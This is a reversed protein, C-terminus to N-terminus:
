TPLPPPLLSAAPIPDAERLDDLDDKGDHSINLYVRKSNVLVPSPAYDMDLVGAVIGEFILVLFQAERLWGQM